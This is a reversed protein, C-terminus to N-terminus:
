IGYRLTVYGVSGPQNFGAATQYDKDLLNEVRAAISFRSDLQIGAGLNVLAYGGNRVGGVDPRDGSGLVDVGLWAPGIQRAIRASVSKEARRLLTTNAIADEPEQLIGTLGARWTPSHYRWSLEVGRNRYKDINVARFGFDVNPDNGLDFEVSILDEVETYFGRLDIVQRAGLQQRVGIEYNEAEEPELDPNGGFGFRDTADPARFGTSASALLRTAAFLDFGYELAWNVQEDFGEYDSFNAGLTAHHRGLRVEDQVFVSFIDREETISRGFSLSDVDERQASAGFSIRMAQGAQVVNHWDAMPRVTRVFDDNLAQQIDDEGRSVTLTSTWNATADLALSFAGVRNQFDQARPEGFPGCFSTYESTGTANWFRASVRVREGIRADGRANLATNDYGRDLTEGACAPFGDTRSQQLGVNLSKEADGYGLQVAADRTNNGGARVMAGAQPGDARRTIINIVGGIADSGYLASRPGRVVEIREIMEPTLNQLAAGGATASNVRIGDILVLTHNSEGGRIFLSTQAGPGGTRGLDIGAEFRLPEAVDTVQAQAIQEREIVTVAALSQASDVPTRTATVVITPPTEAAVALLPAALLGALAYPKM